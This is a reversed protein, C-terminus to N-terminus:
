VDVLIYIHVPLYLDGEKNWLKKATEQNQTRHDKIGTDLCM